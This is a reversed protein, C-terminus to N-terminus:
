SSEEVGGRRGVKRYSKVQGPEENNESCINAWRMTFFFICRNITKNYKIERGKRM